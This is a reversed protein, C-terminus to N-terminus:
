WSNSSPRLDFDLGHGIQSIEPTSINLFIFFRCMTSYFTINVQLTEYYASGNLLISYIEVVEYNHM